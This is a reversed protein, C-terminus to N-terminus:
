IELTEGEWAYLVNIRSLLKERMALVSDSSSPAHHILLLRKARSRWMLEMGQQATSHGFGRKKPYEEETLQADYLLLDAGAAFEALRPFTADNVEYDTAYVISRGDYNLRFVMTRNPHNGEMTEIQVDGVSLSPPLALIEPKGEMDSIKLPWFPPSFVRAMMGEASENDECFPVYVRARQGPVFFGTFMGLGMIHDLHLHSLLVVPPKPYVAPASALGSGADLFITEEGARVMYCSTDGGFAICDNRCAAMSGRAGFVTLQFTKKM